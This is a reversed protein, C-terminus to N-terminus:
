CALTWILLRMSMFDTLILVNCMIKNSMYFLLNPKYILFRYMIVLAVEWRYSSLDNATGMTSILNIYADCNIMLNFKNNLCYSKEM